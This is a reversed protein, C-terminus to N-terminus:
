RDILISEVQRLPTRYRCFADVALDVSFMMATALTLAKVIRSSLHQAVKMRLRKNRLDAATTASAWAALLAIVGSARPAPAFCSGLGSRSSHVPGWPPNGRKSLISTSANLGAIILDISRFRTSIAAM